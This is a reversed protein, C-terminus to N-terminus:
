KKVGGKYLTKGNHIYAEGTKLADYTAQPDKAKAPEVPEPPTVINARPFFRANWTKFDGPEFNRGAYQSARQASDKLYQAQTIQSEILDRVEQIGMNELSPFAKEVNIKVDFVGPRSGYTEKLGAVAGQVLYKAAEQRVRASNTDAIGLTASARQLMAGVVGTVPLTTDGALLRRAANFNQLSQDASVSLESGYERLEKQQQQFLKIGEAQGAVPLGVKTQTNQPGYQAPKAASLAVQMRQAYEPTGVPPATGYQEAPELTQAKAAAAAKAPALAAGVAPKPQTAPAPAAGSANQSPSAVPPGGKDAARQDPPLNRRARDQQLAYEGPTVTGGFGGQEKPAQWRQMNIKDGNTLTVPIEVMMWQRDAALQDGTSGTYLHKQGTVPQGTKTDVLQGDKIETPRGSYLHAVAAIHGAHERAMEDARAVDLKGDPGTAAKRIADADPRDNSELALLAAGPTTGDPDTNHVATATDYTNGNRLQNAATQNDIRAQRQTTVMDSLAKGREPNGVGVAKALKLQQLEQQTWPQVFSQQRFADEINTTRTDWGGGSPAAAPAGGAGPAPTVPNVGSREVSANGGSQDAASEALAQQIMPMSLRQIQNQLAASETQQEVLGTQQRALGAGAFSQQAGAIQQGYNPDLLPVTVDAM